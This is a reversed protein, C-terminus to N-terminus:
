EVIIQANSLPHAEDHYNYSGANAFTHSFTMNTSINVQSDLEAGSKVPYPNSAVRHGSTDNNTWIVTTGKKVKLVSPVFGDETIRVTATTAAQVQPRQVPKDSRNKFVFWAGAGLGVVVVSIIMVVVLTKKSNSTAM